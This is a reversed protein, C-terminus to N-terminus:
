DSSRGDEGGEGELLELHAATWLCSECDGEPCPESPPHDVALLVGAERAIAKYKKMLKVQRAWNKSWLDVAAKEGKAAEGLDANAQILQNAVKDYQEKLRVVEERLRTLANSWNSAMDGSVQLSEALQGVEIRLRSLEKLAAIATHKPLSGDVKARQMAADLNFESM